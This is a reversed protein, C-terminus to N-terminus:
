QHARDCVKAKGKNSQTLTGARPMQYQHMTLKTVAFKLLKNLSQLQITFLATTPKKTKKKNEECIIAPVLFFFGQPKLVSKVRM